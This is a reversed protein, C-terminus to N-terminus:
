NLDNFNHCCLDGSRHEPPIDLKYIESILGCRAVAYNASTIKASNSRDVGVLDSQLALYTIPLVRTASKLYNYTLDDLILGGKTLNIKCAAILNSVNKEAESNYRALSISPGEYRPNFNIAAYFFNLNVVFSCISVFLCLFSYLSIIKCYMNNKIRLAILFIGISSVFNILFNRYFNHAADYCFLFIVPAILLFILSVDNHFLCDKISYKKLSLIFLLFISLAILFVVILNFSSIFAILINLYYILPNNFLDFYPYNPLYNIAYGSKFTFSSSYNIIGNIFINNLSIDYPNLAMSKVFNVIGAAEDCSFKNFTIGYVVTIFLLFVIIIKPLYNKYYSRILKYCLLFSLPVWLLGQLHVYVSTLSFFILLIFIAHALYGNKIDSKIFIFSLLCILINIEVFLEHRALVLGSGSVGIFIAVILLSPVFFHEHKYFKSSCLLLTGIILIIVFFQIIRFQILSLSLDLFSLFYAPLSFLFPTSKFNSQCFSYLGYILGNDQIYRGAQIRFAVEDPYIPMSSWALLSLLCFVFVFFYFFNHNVKIM